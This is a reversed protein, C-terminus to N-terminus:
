KILDYFGSKQSLHITNRINKLTQLGTSVMGLREM